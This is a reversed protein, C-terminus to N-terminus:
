SVPEWHGSVDRVVRWVLTLSGVTFARYVTVRPHRRSFLISYSILHGEVGVLGPTHLPGLM